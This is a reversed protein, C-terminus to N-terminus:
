MVDAYKLRTVSRSSLYSSLTPLTGKLLTGQFVVELTFTFYNFTVKPLCVSLHTDKPRMNDSATLYKRYELGGM